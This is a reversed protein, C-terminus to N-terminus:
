KLCLILLRVETSAVEEIKGVVHRFWTAEERGIANFVSFGNAVQQKEM